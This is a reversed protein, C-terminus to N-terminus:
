HFFSQVTIAALIHFFIQNSYTLSIYKIFEPSWIYTPGRERFLVLQSLIIWYSGIRHKNILILKEVLIIWFKQSFIKHINFNWSTNFNWGNCHKTLYGDFPNKLCQRTAEAREPKRESCFALRSHILIHDSISNIRFYNLM